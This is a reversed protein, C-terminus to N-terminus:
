PIYWDMQGLKEEMTGPPTKLNMFLAVIALVLATLPLNM